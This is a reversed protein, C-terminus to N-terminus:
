LLNYSIIFIGSVEAKCKELDSREEICLQFKGVQVHREPHDEQYQVIAATYAERACRDFVQNEEDTNDNPNAHLFFTGNQWSKLIFHQRSIESILENFAKKDKLLKQTMYPGTGKSRGSKQSPGSHSHLSPTKVGPNLDPAVDLVFKHQSSSDSRQVSRSPHSLSSPYDPDGYREHSPQPKSHAFQWKM